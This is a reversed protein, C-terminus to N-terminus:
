DEYIGNVVLPEPLDDDQLDQTWRFSGGLLFRSEVDRPHYLGLPPVYALAEGPEDHIRLWIDGSNTRCVIPNTGGNVTGSFAMPQSYANDLGDSDDKFRVLGDLTKLDIVGGTGPPTGCFISGDVATLTVPEDIVHSTRFAIGGGRNALTTAGDTDIVVIHGGTTEVRIGDCYPVEITLDVRRASEDGATSTRIRLVSRGGHDEVDADVRVAEVLSAVEEVPVDAAVYVASRVMADSRTPNARVTVAGNFNSVDVALPVPDLALVQEATHTSGCGTVFLLGALFLGASTLRALNM